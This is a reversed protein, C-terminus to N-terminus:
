KAPSFYSLSTTKYFLNQGSFSTYIKFIQQLKVSSSVPSTKQELVSFVM